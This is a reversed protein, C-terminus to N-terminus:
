QEQVNTVDYTKIKAGVLLDAGAEMFHLFHRTQFHDQLAQRSEWEEVFVITAPDDHKTYFDYTICGHEARSPELMSQCLELFAHVQDTKVKAHGHLVVM